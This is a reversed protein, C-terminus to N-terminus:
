GSVFWTGRPVNRARLGLKPVARYGLKRVASYGPLVVNIVM